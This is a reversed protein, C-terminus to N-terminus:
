LFANKTSYSSQWFNGPKILYNFFPRDDVPPSIDEEYKDYFSEPEKGRVFRDFPNDHITGPQHVIKFEHTMSHKYLAALQPASFPTKKFLFTSFGEKDAIFIHKSPDKVGMERLAAMALSTLRLSRTEFGFRSFSLVGRDTLHEFYEIFAEKTYLSSESLSFAGASPHFWEYVLSAHILDYSETTRRVFSRANDIITTVGPMSYPAGTYYGFERDVTDVIAGNIEVATISSPSFYRASIIDQGGGPGILLVKPEPILRYAM